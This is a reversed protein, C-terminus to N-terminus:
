AGSREDWRRSRSREAHMARQYTGFWIEQFSSHSQRGREDTWRVVHIWPQMNPWGPVTAVAISEGEFHYSDGREDTADIEQRLATFTRPHYELVNRRVSALERPEGDVLVWGWHFAPGDAPVEYCARGPPTPTSRSSASRTSRSTRRRLVDPSWGIPPIPAPRETRMQSWSRDRAETCDIELREGHLVLEGSVQMMQECAARSSRLRRQRREESPLVHGRKLLPTVARPPSSSSVHEEASSYSVKAERGPETFEIRLGNATTITNGDVEPWDMWAEYDLHEADLM